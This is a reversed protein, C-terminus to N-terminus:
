ARPRELSGLLPISSSGRSAGSGLGTWSKHNDCMEPKFHCHQHQQHQRKPHYLQHYLQHKSTNSNYDAVDTQSAYVYNIKGGRGGKCRKINLRLIEAAWMSFVFLIPLFFFIFVFIHLLLLLMKQTDFSFKVRKSKTQPSYMCRFCFESV